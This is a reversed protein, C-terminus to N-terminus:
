IHILSLGMLYHVVLVTIAQGTVAIWRILVLTRARVRAPRGMDIQSKDLATAAVAPAGNGGTASNAPDSFSAM